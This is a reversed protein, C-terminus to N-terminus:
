RIRRAVALTSRQYFGDYLEVMSLRNPLHHLINGDGIHIAAHNPICDVTDIGMLIVDGREPDKNILEFGADAMGDMYPNMGFKWFDKSREFDQFVIGEGEFWDRILTFCDQIGWAFRRKQLELNSSMRFWATPSVIWWPKHSELCFKLDVPSPTCGVDHTHVYGLVPGMDEARALDVPSFRGRGPIDSLNHCPVYVAENSRHILVGCVEHEARQSCERISALLEPTM